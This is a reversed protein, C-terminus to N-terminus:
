LLYLRGGYNWLYASMSRLASFSGLFALSDLSSSWTSKTANPGASELKILKPSKIRLTVRPILEAVALKLQSTDFSRVTGGFPEIITGLSPKVSTPFVRFVSLCSLICAVLRQNVRWEVLIHRLRLPIITPLGIHDRKVMVGGLPTVPEGHGALFRIVLRYVEKLYLFTFQFGSRKILTRIRDKLLMLSSAFESAGTIWIVKSFYKSLEKRTIWVKNSLKPQRLNIFIEKM